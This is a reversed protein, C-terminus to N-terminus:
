VATSTGPGRDIQDINQITSVGKPSMALAILAVGRVSTPRTMRTARLCLRHDHGIVTARHPDCLIIQARMDILKDVFFLRNFRLQHILM